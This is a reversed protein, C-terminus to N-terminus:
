NLCYARYLLTHDYIARWAGAAKGTVCIYKKGDQRVAYSVACNGSQNVYGTKAGQITLTTGTFRDEIRRLFLNSLSIGYPHEATSSTRFTRASLIVRCISHDMAAKMIVAMDRMTCYHDKNYLGICNTFHATDSIGLDKLKQNMLEVFAEQSGSIHRALALCADAGSPLICGYLLDRVTVTEWTSFGAVSCNNTYCYNTVQRTVTVKTDMGKVGEPTVKVLKEVAVLLTLVKTMSAPSVRVDSNREARIYGTDADLLVAYQSGIEASEGLTITRAWRSPTFTQSAKSGSASSSNSTSGSNSAYPGSYQTPLYNEPNETLYDVAGPDTGTYTFGRPLTEGPLLNEPNELAYDEVGDASGVPSASLEAADALASAPLVESQDGVLFNGPAKSSQMQAAISVALKEAKAVRIEHLRVSLASLVPISLLGCLLLLVLTMQKRQREKRKRHIERWRRERERARSDAEMKDLEDLIVQFEEM